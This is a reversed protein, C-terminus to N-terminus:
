DALQHLKEHESAEDHLDQLCVSRWYFLHYLRRSKHNGGQDFSEDYKSIM